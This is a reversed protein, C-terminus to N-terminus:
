NSFGQAIGHIDYTHTIRNKKKEGFKSNGDCKLTSSVILNSTLCVNLPNIKIKWVVM